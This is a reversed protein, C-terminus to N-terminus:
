AYVDVLFLEEVGLPASGQPAPRLPGALEICLRQDCHRRTQPFSGSARFHRLKTDPAELRALAKEESASVIDLLDGASRALLHAAGADGSTVSSAGLWEDHAAVFALMRKTYVSGDAAILIKM